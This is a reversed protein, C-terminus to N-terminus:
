RIEGSVLTFEHDYAGARRSYRYSARGNSVDFTLTDGDYTMGDQQATLLEDAVLLRETWRDVTIRGDEHRTFKPQDTM